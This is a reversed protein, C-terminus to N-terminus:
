KRSVTALIRVPIPALNKGQDKAEQEFAERAKNVARTVAEMLRNVGERIWSPDATTFSKDFYRYLYDNHGPTILPLLAAVFQKDAESLDLGYGMCAKFLNELDHGYPKKALAAAEVGHLRLFAKLFLEVSHSYLFYIPFAGQLDDQQRQSQLIDAARQFDVALSFFPSRHTNENM